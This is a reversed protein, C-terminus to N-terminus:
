FFRSIMESEQKGSIIMCVHVCMCKYHNEISKKFVDLALYEVGELINKETNLPEKKYTFAKFMNAKMFCKAFSPSCSNM